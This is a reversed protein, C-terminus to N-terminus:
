DKLTLVQDILQIVRSSRTPLEDALFRVAPIYKLDLHDRLRHRIYSKACNLQDVSTQLSQHPESTTLFVKAHKLDKSLEVETITTQAVRPDAIDNQLIHSLAKHVVSGVMQTRYSGDMQGVRNLKLSNM